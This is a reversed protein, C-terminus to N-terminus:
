RNNEESVSEDNAKWRTIVSNNCVSVCNQGIKDCAIRCKNCLYDAYEPAYQIPSFIRENLTPNNINNSTEPFVIYVFVLSDRPFRHTHIHAHRARTRTHVRAPLYAAFAFVRGTYMKCLQTTPSWRAFNVRLNTFLVSKHKPMPSTPQVTGTLMRSSIQYIVHGGDTSSSLRLSVHRTTVLDHPLFTGVRKDQFSTESLSHRSFSRAIKCRDRFGDSRFTDCAKQWCSYDDHSIDFRDSRRGRRYLNASRFESRRGYM